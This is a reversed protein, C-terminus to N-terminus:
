RYRRWDDTWKRVEETFIDSALSKTGNQKSSRIWWKQEQVFGKHKVHKAIKWQTYWLTSACVEEDEVVCEPNPGPDEAAACIFIKERQEGTTRAAARSPWTLIQRAWYERSASICFFFEASEVCLAPIFYKYSIYFCAILRTPPPPRTFAQNGRM